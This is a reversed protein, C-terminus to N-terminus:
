LLDISSAECSLPVDAAPERLRRGSMVIARGLVAAPSQAGTSRTVVANGVHAFAWGATPLLSVEECRGMFHTLAHDSSAIGPVDNKAVLV